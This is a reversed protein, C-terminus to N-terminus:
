LEDLSRIVIHLARFLADDIDILDVLNGALAFVGADGAVYGALAYLLRQELNQLACHGRHRRLAPTLVRLLLKDLDIRRIHQEDYAARKVADILDDFLAGAFLGHAEPRIDLAFRFLFDAIRQHLNQRLVKQFVAQNRFKDAAQRHYHGQM